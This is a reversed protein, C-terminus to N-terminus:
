SIIFSLNKRYMYEESTEPSLYPFEKEAHSPDFNPYQRIALGKLSQVSSQGVGDSFAEKKRWLVKDPIYGEFAKRLIYKGIRDIPFISSDEQQYLKHRTDLSLVYEVFDKDLFPVRTELSHAMTSKNARLCDFMFLNRVLRCTENYFDNITPANQFYLYGGFLEDSGEGSLCMKIGQEHVYKAMLYMPISARITTVDFTELSYIVDELINLGDDVSYIIEHHETGIYEAVMRAYKLDTSDELGISFSKLRKSSHRQAIAAVLSSDVGGSLFVGYEVDSMLRKKVSKELLERLTDFNVKTEPLEKPINWYPLNFGGNTHGLYKVFYQGPYLHSIKKCHKQLAKIESAVWVNHNNDFGIYVSCIGIHDRAVIIKEDDRYVFAFQGDLKSIAEIGYHKILPLVVECDVMTEFPFWSLEERLELHNYIEGNISVVADNYRFPQKNKTPDNIALRTHGIIYDSTYFTDQYDPGRHTLQSQCKIFNAIQEDSPNNVEQFIIGCM